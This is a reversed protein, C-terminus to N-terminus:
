FTLGDATNCNGTLVYLALIKDSDSALVRIEVRDKDVGTYLAAEVKRLWLGHVEAEEIRFQDCIVCRGDVQGLREEGGQDGLILRGGQHVGGRAKRDHWQAPARSIAGGLRRQVV